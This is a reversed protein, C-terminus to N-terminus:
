TRRPKSGRGESDIQAPDKLSAVARNLAPGEL